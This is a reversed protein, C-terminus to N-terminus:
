KKHNRVALNMVGIANNWYIDRVMGENVGRDLLRDALTNYSNIGTFGEPLADCGDLDGGLAIHKGSPDLELFHLM